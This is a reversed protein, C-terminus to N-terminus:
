NIDGVWITEGRVRFGETWMYTGPRHKNVLENQDGAKPGQISTM